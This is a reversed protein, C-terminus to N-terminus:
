ASTPWCRPRAGEGLAARLLSARGPAGAPRRSGTPSSAAVNRAYLADDGAAGWGDGLAAARAVAGLRALHPVSAARRGTYQDGDTSSASTASSAPSCRGTSRSTPRPRRRERPHALESAMERLQGALDRWERMRVYSLFHERCTELLKRNSKKHVFEADFFKWLNMLQLFDSSEDRFEEHARDSQERLAQPRDRPDQISLAAALIVMEALCHFERAALLM